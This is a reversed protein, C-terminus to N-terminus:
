KRINNVLVTTNLALSVRVLANGNEGRVVAMFTRADGQPLKDKAMEPLAAIAADKAGEIDEFEWGDDDRCFADEDCTDIFFRPM